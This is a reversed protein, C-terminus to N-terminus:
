FCVLSFRIVCMHCTSKVIVCYFLCALLSAPLTSFFVFQLFCESPGAPLAFAHGQICVVSFSSTLTSLQSNALFVPQAGWALLRASADKSWVCTVEMHLYNVGASKVGLNNGKEESAEQSSPSCAHVVM